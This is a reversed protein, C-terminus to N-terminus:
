GGCMPRWKPPDLWQEVKIIVTCRDSIRYSGPDNPDFLEGIYFNVYHMGVDNADPTWGFSEPTGNVDEFVQMGDPIDGRIVVSRGSGGSWNFDCTWTEGVLTQVTGMVPYAAQNPDFDFASSPKLCLLLCVAVFLIKQKINKM